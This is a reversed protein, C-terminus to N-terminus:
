KLNYFYEIKNPLYLGSEQRTLNFSNSVLLGTLQSNVVDSVTISIDKGKLVDLAIPFLKKGLGSERYNPCIFFTCIKNESSSHKLLAFGALEGDNDKAILIERSGSIFGRAFTNFYWQRINPYYMKLYEIEQSLFKINTPNPELLYTKFNQDLRYLYKYM